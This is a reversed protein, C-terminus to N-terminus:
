AATLFPVRCVVEAGGARYELNPFSTVKAIAIGKGHPDSVMRMPDFDLYSQWRFGKGQDRITITINEPTTEFTLQAFKNVNEPLELRKEVEQQWCDGLVLDMKNEYTINLNGHEVANIMLESLGYVVADPKPCCNSVYYAVNSVDQLTRFRFNGRELLGNMRMDVVPKRPTGKPASSNRQLASKVISVLLSENYPKILYYFVGAAIGEKVQQSQGAATQMIIPINKYVPNNKLEAVVQMGDMNPMMRDLVIVDIGPNEKLRALAIVGDEARIVECGAEELDAQLIDLNFAEDDVALIKPKRDTKPGSDTM